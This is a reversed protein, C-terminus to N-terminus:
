KGAGSGRRHAAQLRAVADLLKPTGCDWGPGRLLRHGLRLDMALIAPHHMIAEPRSQGSYPPATIVLDPAAMVLRELPLRAYGSLGLEAAVNRFGGAALISDDMSGAGSTFGGPDYLVARDTPQSGTRLRALTEGFRTAMAEAKAEQGLAAGVSRILGPVDDLREPEPFIAVKIGLRRLLAVTSLSSYTGALVLDPHLLFIAEAQGDNKPYAAAEAAMASVHPDAAVFSISVLQGPAALLMALEDACLNMSVVRAPAATGPSGGLAVAVAFVAACIKSRLACGWM